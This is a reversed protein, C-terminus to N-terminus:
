DEIDKSRSLVSLAAKASKRQEPHWGDETTMRELHQLVEVQSDPDLGAYVARIRETNRSLLGDWLIELPDRNM